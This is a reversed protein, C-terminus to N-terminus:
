TRCVTKVITAGNILPFSPANETSVISHSSISTPSNVQSLYRSFKSVLSQNLCLFYRLKTTARSLSLASCPYRLSNIHLTLYLGLMSVPLCKWELDLRSYFSSPYSNVLGLSVFTAICGLRIM